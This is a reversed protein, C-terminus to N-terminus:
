TYSGCIRSTSEQHAKMTTEMMRFLEHVAEELQRLDAVDDHIKSDSTRLALDLEKVLATQVHARRTTFINATGLLVESGSSLVKVAVEVAKEGSLGFSCAISIVAVAFYMRGVVAQATEDDGHALCTALKKKMADDFVADIVMLGGVAIGTIALAVAAVTGGSVVTAVGMGIMPLPNLVNVILNVIRSQRNKKAEAVSEEGLKLFLEKRWEQAQKVSLARLKLADEDCLAIKQFVDRLINEFPSDLSMLGKYATNEVPVSAQAIYPNRSLVSSICPM